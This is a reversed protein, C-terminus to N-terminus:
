APLYVTLKLISNRVAVVAVFPHQPSFIRDLNLIKKFYIDQTHLYTNQLVLQQHMLRM